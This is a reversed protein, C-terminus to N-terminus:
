RDPKVASLRDLKKEKLAAMYNARDEASIDSLKRGAFAHAQRRASQEILTAWAGRLDAESDYDESWQLLAVAAARVMTEEPRGQYFSELRNVDALEPHERLVALVAALQTTDEDGGSALEPLNALREPKHLIAQLVVRAPSPLAARPRAPPRPAGHGPPRRRTEMGGLGSLAALRQRLSRALLPAKALQALYPEVLKVLRVKGEPSDPEARVSLEDFLFDSLPRAEDCLKEFAERGAQRVYSDPDEGQPLFLFTARKGDPLQPLSNELARWAAKRGANDGDFAFVVDDVLKFLKAVHDPTVATGLTALANDVGHQALMVVDMYGEVVVARGAQQIGRRNEYLGYLERGKHFLPTEPSNLYKPEGQGIVRGGFAIVRGRENRIPFMVRDRFRDYRKGENVIVLGAEELAGDQYDAVAAVLGQWEDAAYGLGFAAATRGDLGRGKLYDVAKASDKLLGKYHQAAQEMVALLRDRRGDEPKRQGDDPVTMGTRDALEKVAEVFGMGAHEMLFSIATGHAGCGFCHYFQKTPSVTFSPTKEGHFPCCAMYNAGKKKLPVYRDVVEVIDVRDLLQHIFDQPIM